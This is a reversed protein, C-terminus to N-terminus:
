PTAWDTMQKCRTMLPGFFIKNDFDATMKVGDRGVAKFRMKAIKGDHRLRLVTALWKATEGPISVSKLEATM